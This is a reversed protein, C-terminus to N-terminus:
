TAGDEVRRLTSGAFGHILVVPNRQANPLAARYIAEMDSSPYQAAVQRATKCGAGVVAALLLVAVALARQKAKASVVPLM